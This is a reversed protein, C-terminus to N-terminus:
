IKGQKKWLAIMADPAKKGVHTYIMTTKIDSHGLMAALEYPNTGNQMQETAFSHRFGHFSSHVNAKKMAHYITTNAYQRTITFGTFEQLQSLLSIPLYTTRSKRGKGEVVKVVVVEGDPEFHHPRLALTESLRTGCERSILCALRLENGAPTQPIAALIRSQEDATILKEGIHEASELSSFSRRYDEALDELSLGFTEDRSIAKCRYLAKFTGSVQLWHSRSSISQETFTGSLLKEAISLYIECTRPSKTKKAVAEELSKKLKIYREDTIIKSEKKIRKM